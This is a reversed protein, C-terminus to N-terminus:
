PVPSACLLLCCVGSVSPATTVPIISDVDPLPHVRGLNQGPPCRLCFNTWVLDSTWTYPWLRICRCYRWWRSGLTDRWLWLMKCVQCDYAISMDRSSRPRTLRSDSVSRVKTSMNDTPDCLRTERHDTNQQWRYILPHRPQFERSYPRPLEDLGGVPLM